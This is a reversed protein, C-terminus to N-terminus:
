TLQGSFAKHLLSQRLHGIAEIQGHYNSELQRTDRLIASLRSAIEKQEDVMPFPFRANEFTALNINDQASGKGLAKLRKSFSRLMFELYEQTAKQPDVVIGIVSDPFCAEFSLIGTEAINAAITICVTGAPWLKSQALGRANYTQTFETIFQDSNRIEGTQVFPYQGDYLAPDNRPRHRSRGRGYDCAIGALTYLKAHQGIQSFEKALACEFIDLANRLNAEANERARALGEFAEDLIAVIRKQDEIPPLTIPFSKLASASLEKFTTGTGLADLTDRSFWLFYYLYTADVAESPVLARCGQNFAMPTENIALHGIPARTSLIVSGIPVLRASSKGLGAVTIKRPTEAIYRATMRGMDRPTLWNVDGDWYEQVNSKPTGGNVVTAVSGLPVASWGKKV